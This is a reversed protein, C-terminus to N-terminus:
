EYIFGKNLEGVCFHHKYDVYRDVLYDINVNESILVYDTFLKGRKAIVKYINFIGPKKFEILIEKKPYETEPPNKLWRNFAKKLQKLRM